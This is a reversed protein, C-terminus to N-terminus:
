PKPGDLQAGPVVIVETLALFRLMKLDTASKLTSQEAAARKMVIPFIFAADRESPSIEEGLDKTREQLMVILRAQEDETLTNPPGVKILLDDMEPTHFHTLEKILIAQMATAIPIVAADVLALKTEMAVLRKERVLASTRMNFLVTIGAGVAATLLMMGVNIIWPPAPNIDPTM